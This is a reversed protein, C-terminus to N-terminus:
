NPALNADREVTNNPEKRAVFTERKPREPTPEEAVRREVRATATDLSYSVTYYGDGDGGAFSIVIRSGNTVVKPVPSVFNRGLHPDFLSRFASPPLLYRWGDSEVAISVIESTPVVGDTGSYSADDITVLVKYGEITKYGMRHLKVDFRTTEVVVRVGPAEAVHRETGLAAGAVALASAATILGLLRPM